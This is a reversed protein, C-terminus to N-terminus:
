NSDVGVSPDGAQATNKRTFSEHPSSEFQKLRQDDTFGGNLGLTNGLFEMLVGKPLAAAAGNSVGDAADIDGEPFIARQSIRPLTEL